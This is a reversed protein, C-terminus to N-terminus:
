EVDPTYEGSETTDQTARVAGIETLGLLSDLAILGPYLHQGRLDIKQASGAAPVSAGVGTITGNELLVDGPSFTEGSVTHVTAGSLLVAEGAASRNPGAGVILGLAALFIAFKM